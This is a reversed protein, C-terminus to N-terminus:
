YQEKLQTDQYMDGIPKDNLDNVFLEFAKEIFLGEADQGRVRIFFDSKVEFNPVFNVKLQQGDIEFIDNNDSGDGSVFSYRLTDGADPDLDSLRAIETGSAINEDFTTASISLEIPAENVDNIALEFSKEISNGGSDLAMVRISYSYKQEYNASFEAILNNQNISFLHNDSDGEGSVLSYEHVDLPDADVASIIAVITSEELGEDFSANSISLESPAHDNEPGWIYLLAELDSITFEPPASFYDGHPVADYSMITDDSRAM